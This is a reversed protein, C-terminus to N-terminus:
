TPKMVMLFFIIILGMFAPWGLLFWIRFLRDYLPPLPAGSVLCAVVIRKMKLQIWVVPLWCLGAIAYLAYTALLWADTWNFGAHWVLWAGTAPQLIAAPATFMYDAFVTTKLAFFKEHLQDTFRSRFTFFTIGLGTGFLVTGSIVHITKILFYPTM